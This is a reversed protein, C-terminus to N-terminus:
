YNPWEEFLLNFNGFTKEFIYESMTPCILSILKLFLLAANETWSKNKLKNLFCYELRAAYLNLNGDKLYNTLENVLSIMDKETEINSADFPQNYKDKVEDLFQNIRDIKFFVEEFNSDQPHHIIYMRIADTSFNKISDTVFSINLNNCLQINDFRPYSDKIIKYNSYKIEKNDLHAFILYSLIEPIIDEEYIIELKNYTFDKNKLYRDNENLLCKLLGSQYFHNFTLHLLDINVEPNNHYLIKGFRNFKLPYYVKDVPKYDYGDDIIEFPVPAGTEDPSSIIFKTNKYKKTLFGFEESVYEEIIKNRAEEKKLGNLFDSNIVMDNEYVDVYEFGADQSLKKDEESISPIGVHIAEDFHRSIIICIDNGNFPNKATVGSFCYNSNNFSFNIVSDKEDEDVYELVDMYKPNLAIFSIGSTFEPEELEIVLDKNISTRFPISIVDYPAFSSILEDKYKNDLKLNSILNIIADVHNSLDIYLYNDDIRYLEEKNYKSYYKDFIQEVEFSNFYRNKAKNTFIIGHTYFINKKYHNFFFEDFTNIVNDNSLNLFYNTDFGIHLKKLSDKYKITDQYDLGQTKSFSFSSYALNDLGAQYLVNYGKMRYYRGYMDAYVYLYASDPTLEFTNTRAFTNYIYIPTRYKDFIANFFHRKEYDKLLEEEFKEM